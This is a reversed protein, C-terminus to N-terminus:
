WLRLWRWGAQVAFWPRVLGLRAAWEPISGVIEDVELGDERWEALHRPDGDFPFSWKHRKGQITVSCRQKV